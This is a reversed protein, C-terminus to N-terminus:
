ENKLSRFGIQMERTFDESGLTEYYTSTLSVSPVETDFPNQANEVWRYAISNMPCSCTHSSGRKVLPCGDVQSSLSFYQFGDIALYPTPYAPLDSADDNGKTANGLFVGLFGDYEFDGGFAGISLSSAISQVEAVTSMNISDIDGYVTSTRTIATNNYQTVALSVTDM